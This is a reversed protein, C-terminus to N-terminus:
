SQRAQSWSIRSVMQATGQRCYLCEVSRGTGIQDNSAWQTETARTGKQSTHPWGKAKPAALLTRAKRSQLSLPPTRTSRPAGIRLRRDSLSLGGGVFM